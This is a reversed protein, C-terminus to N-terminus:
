KVAQLKGPPIKKLLVIPCLSKVVMVTGVGRKSGVTRCPLKADRSEAYYVGPGPPLFSAQNSALLKGGVPSDYWDVALGDALLAQLAGIPERACVTRSSVLPPSIPQTEVVPVARQTRLTDQGSIQSLTVIQGASIGNLVYSSDSTAVLTGIDTRLTGKSKILLEVSLNGEFCALQAAIQLPSFPSQAYCIGSLGGIWSLLFLSFITKM